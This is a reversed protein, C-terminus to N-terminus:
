IIINDDNTYLINSIHLICNQIMHLKTTIINATRGAAVLVVTACILNYQTRMARECVCM